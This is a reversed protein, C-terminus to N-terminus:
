TTADLRHIALTLLHGSPDTLSAALLRRPQMLQQRGVILRIVIRQTVRGSGQRIVPPNLNLGGTAPLIKIRRQGFMPRALAQMLALDLDHPDFLNGLILPM